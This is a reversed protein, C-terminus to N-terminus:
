SHILVLCQVTRFFGESGSRFGTCKQFSTFCKPFSSKLGSADPATQEFSTPLIHTSVHLLATVPQFPKLCFITLALKMPEKKKQHVFIASYCFYHVVKM